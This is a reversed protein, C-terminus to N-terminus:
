LDMITVCTFRLCITVVHICYCHVVQTKPALLPRCHRCIKRYVDVNLLGRFSSLPLSSAHSGRADMDVTRNHVISVIDKCSVLYCMTILQLRPSSCEFQFPRATM